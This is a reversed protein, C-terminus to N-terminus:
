TTNVIVGLSVRTAALNVFALCNRATKEYRTALLVVMFAAGYWLSFGGVTVWATVRSPFAPHACLLPLLGAALWCWVLNTSGSFANYECLPGLLVGAWVQPLM